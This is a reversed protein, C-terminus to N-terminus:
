MVVCCSCRRSSSAGAPYIQHVGFIRGNANGPSSARVDMRVIRLDTQSTGSVFVYCSYYHDVTLRIRKRFWVEEPSWDDFADLGETRNSDRSIHAVYLAGSTRGIALDCGNFPGSAAWQHAGLFAYTAKEAAYPIWVGPGNEHRVLDVQAGVVLDCGYSRSVLNRPEHRLNPQLELQLTFDKQMVGTLIPLPM